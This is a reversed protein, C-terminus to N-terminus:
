PITSMRGINNNNNKAGGVNGGSLTIARMDSRWSLWKSIVTMIVLLFINTLWWALSLPFGGYSCCFIFHIFYVTAASFDLCQQIIIITLLHVNISQLLTKYNYSYMYM